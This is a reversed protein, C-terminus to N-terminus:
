QALILPLFSHYYPQEDVYTRLESSIVLPQIRYGDEVSELMGYANLVHIMVQRMKNQAQSTWKAVELHQERKREFFATVLDNVRVPRDSQVLYRLEEIVFDRPFRYSALFSYTLIALSDSRSGELFILRLKDDMWAIRRKTLMLHTQATSTRRVQFLNRSLVDRRVDTWALGSAILRLVVEIEHRLPRESMFSGAYGQKTMDQM